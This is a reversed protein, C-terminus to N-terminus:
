SVKMYLKGLRRLSKWMELRQNTKLSKREKLWCQYGKRNDICFLGVKFQCSTETAPCVKRKDIRVMTFIEENRM